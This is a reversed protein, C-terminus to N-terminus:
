QMFPNLIGFRNLVIRINSRGFFQVADLELSGASRSPVIANVRVGRAALGLVFETLYGRVACVQPEAHDDPPLVLTAWANRAVRGLARLVLYSSRADADLLDAWESEQMKPFATQSTKDAVHVLGEIVGFIQLSKEFMASVELQVMPDAKIPIARGGTAEIESAVAAADEGDQDIVIVNAGAHGFARAVALGFGHGANTVAIVANRVGTAEM